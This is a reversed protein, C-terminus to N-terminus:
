FCSWKPPSQGLCTSIFDYWVMACSIMFLFFSVWWKKCEHLCGIGCCQYCWISRIPGLLFLIMNEQMRLCWLCFLFLYLKVTTILSLSTHPLGLNPSKKDGDPGADSGLRWTQGWCFGSILVKGNVNCVATRVSVRGVNESFDRSSAARLGAFRDEWISM